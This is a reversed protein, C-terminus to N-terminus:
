YEDAVEVLNLGEAEELTAYVVWQDRTSNWIFCETENLHYIDGHEDTHTPKKFKNNM